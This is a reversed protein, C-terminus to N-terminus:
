RRNYVDADPVITMIAEAVIVNIRELAKVIVVAIVVIAKAIIM